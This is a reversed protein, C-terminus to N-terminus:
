CSVLTGTSCTKRGSGGCTFQATSQYLRSDNGFNGNSCYNRCDTCSGSSTPNCHTPTMSTGSHSLCQCCYFNSGAMARSTLSQIVPAVWVAGGVIAGRRILDRRSIGSRQHTEEHEAM